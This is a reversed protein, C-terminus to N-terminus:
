GPAVAKRLITMKETTVMPLKDARYERQLARYKSGGMKHFPLLEIKVGNGYGKVREAISKLVAGNIGFEGPKCFSQGSLKLLVRNYKSKAM